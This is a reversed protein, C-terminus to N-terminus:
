EPVPQPVPPDHVSEGVADPERSQTGGELAAARVVMGVPFVHM